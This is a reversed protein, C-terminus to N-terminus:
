SGVQDLEVRVCDTEDVARRLFRLLHLMQTHAQTKGYKATFFITSLLVITLPLIFIYAWTDHLQYQVLAFITGITGLTGTAIYFFMFKTWVKDNPGILGRILTGDKEQDFSLSLVPTWYHRDKKPITLKIFRDYKSNVVTEDEEGHGHIIDMIEDKDLSTKLRFRPRIKGAATDDLKNFPM